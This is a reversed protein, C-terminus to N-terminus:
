FHVRYQLLLAVVILFLGFINKFYKRSFAELNGRPTYMIHSGLQSGIFAALGLSIVTSDTLSINNLHAVLGSASSVLVILSSTAAAERVGYGFALLLPVVFSGGGIGLLGACVGAGLGVLLGMLLRKKDAPKPLIANRSGPAMMILGVLVIVFSFISIIANESIQTGIYKGIPAGIVSFVLFPIAAHFDITKKRLYIFSSSGTTVVNLLLSLPIAIRLDIGIWYFLPVYIVAGGIGLYAFVSSLFLIILALLLPDTFM